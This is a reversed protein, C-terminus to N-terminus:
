YPANVNAKLYTWGAPFIANADASYGYVDPERGAIGSYFLGQDTVTPGGIQASFTMDITENDDLSVAFNQSDLVAKQLTFQHKTKGDQGKVTLIANTSEEGATGTLIMDLSGTSLNKLIANVTMTVNIPFELPKAVAREAGLASINGRSMPVEISASQVHMDNRDTGGFSFTNNNFSLVVDEPRLVLVDMNGTTPVGLQYQGTDARGGDRNLSPNYIGSSGTDFQINQAEGEVDVRPIEGVSFNVSYSNITCNGFSVVDHTANQAATFAGTPGALRDSTNEFADEGEKVTLCFINKERKAPDETIVGSIFQSSLVGLASRGLPNFGLNGENEGDGLYYGMSFSPNLESMTLTGIRALQGFERVDQRAGAIDIDFSFTDVRHIQQPFCGSLAAKLTSPGNAGIPIAGTPAVYLAKSQSIIRTRSAM